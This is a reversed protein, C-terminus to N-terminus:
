SGSKTPPMPKSSIRLGALPHPKGLLWTPQSPELRDAARRTTGTLIQAWCGPAARRWCNSVGFDAGADALGFTVMGTGPGTAVSGSQMLIRACWTIGVTGCGPVAWGWPGTARRGFTILVPLWRSWGWRRRRLRKPLWWPTRRSPPKFKQKRRWRLLQPPPQNLLLSRMLIVM